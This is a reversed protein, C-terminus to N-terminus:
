VLAEHLVKGDVSHTEMGVKKGKNFSFTLMYGVDLDFYSMYDRLQQEGDSHYKAGRWIKMEIIYRRGLYHIVVDMRRKNKTREEISYTGTGNMIPALYLLFQRRGDEEIFRKEEEEEDEDEDENAKGAARIRDYEKVFSELIRYVNLTGDEEIFRPKNDRATVALQRNRETAIRYDADFKRTLRVRFIENAIVLTGESVKVFGYLLFQKQIENDPNYEIYMGKYLFDSLAKALDPYADLKNMLSGFLADDKTIIQNAAEDVGAVTWAKSLSSVRMPVFETDLIRCIKSVLVPYGGTWYQIADAVKRINMRISHDEKYEGLMRQIGKSSLKMSIVTSSAINWPSGRGQSRDDSRIGGKLHVVDTVGALIVSQFATSDGVNRDIYSDRLKSLFDWFVASEEAKDVEDLLLVISRSSLRCWREIFFRLKQLNFPEKNRLASEMTERIDDPLVLGQIQLYLVYEMFAFCFAEDSEFGDAPWSALSMNVVDYQDSLVNKLAKLLTTKGYQRPRSIVYYKGKDVEAKM